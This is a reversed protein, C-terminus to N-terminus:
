TANMLRWVREPTLPMDAHRVGFPALADVIANVVAPTSAITGTEGVGKAGMPNVPTPTETRATELPPLEAAVPLAYDMLSGSLLQGDQDYVAGEWLAQAVGQVIGGHVQGDVIMPNIVKGCDDVAVYRKLEVKGTGQDVEVVAVHCGFPYVFNTPDFFSSAELGPEVGAPMSWALYSQLAVEQITKSREPVGKVSFRGDSFEVDEPAAELMHAAIIRAKEKIKRSALAIAAGGVATSRSGYTGLGFPIASTDGHVIQVDDIPVGLESSVLQAFTTEHGQGHPSSGTFVNVKGTPHMRVVASEYLGGQFGVAGAVSSPGLGCIEVYTSFGIGLYRGQQRAEQQERLFAPYDVMALARDLTKEYDGSDYILGSAVTAPFSAAPIFNERRVETPDLGLEDALLDVLREIAYTAEPRGAGRYADVPTTNTLVGYVDYDIAPIQYPGTLILGHLITPIGPAATSLYAGLNAYCTGRLGLIKGNGTAALEFDAIHDRGHITATYNERRDESWKIPRNLLMALYGVVAEEPYCHIKSGFGGGVEPAVVRLKHEPIGLIGSLLLRHIHPNQSTMWITMDGTAKNYQAVSGRTEIATPILRQNLIRQRIVVPANAFAAQIDGGAVRWHFAVNNPVDPHLQPAGEKVAEEQNTVAPLPEYDVAVLAAADRAAGRSDAVVAAVADGVYRTTDVALPPHAPTKLDSNPILWATPVNGVKGVLDRGTVVAAVGPVAKATSTDIGKIRAHAHPSRVFAVYGLNPLQIDDVYTAGGTILRPDERRKVAAGFISSVAM